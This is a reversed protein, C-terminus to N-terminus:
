SQSWCDICIYNFQVLTDKQPRLLHTRDVKEGPYTYFQFDVKFTCLFPLVIKILVEPEKGCLLNLRM